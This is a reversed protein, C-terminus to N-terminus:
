GELKELEDARVKFIGGCYMGATCIRVEILGDERIFDVLAVLQVSRGSPLPKAAKIRVRERRTFTAETM